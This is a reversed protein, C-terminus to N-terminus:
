FSADVSLLQISLEQSEKLDQLADSLLGVLQLKRWRHRAEMRHEM